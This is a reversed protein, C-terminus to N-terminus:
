RKRRRRVFAVAALGVGLQVLAAPEPVPANGIGPSLVVSYGPNSALFAPDIFIYPDAFADATGAGWVVADVQLNIFGVAGSSASFPLTGSFAATPRGASSAEALINYLHVGANGAATMEFRAMANSRPDAASVSAYLIPVVFLPVSIGNVPGEVAYGYRIISEVSGRINQAVAHGSVAPSPSGVITTSNGAFAYNGPALFSRTEYFGDLAGAYFADPLVLAASAIGPLFAAAVIALVCPWLCISPFRTKSAETQFWNEM